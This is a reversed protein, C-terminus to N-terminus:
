TIKAQNLLLIKRKKRRERAKRRSEEVNAHYRERQIRRSYEIDKYYKAKILERNKDQYKKVAKKLIINWKEKNKLRWNKTHQKQSERRKPNTRYARRALKTRRKLACEECFRKKTNGMEKLCVVCKKIKKTKPIDKGKLSKHLMKHHPPCLWIVELPKSYDPHHTEGLLTCFPYECTKKTLKSSIKKALYKKSHLIQEVRQKSIGLIIGIKDYTYGHRRCSKIFSQKNEDLM